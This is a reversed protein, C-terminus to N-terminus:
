DDLHWWVQAPLVCHSIEAEVRARERAQRGRQYVKHSPNTLSTRRRDWQIRERFHFTTQNWRHRYTTFTQFSHQLLTTWWGDLLSQKDKSLWRSRQDGLSLWLTVILQRCAFTSHPTSVKQDYISDLRQSPHLANRNIFMTQSNVSQILLCIVITTLAILGFTCM